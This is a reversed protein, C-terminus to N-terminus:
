AWACEDEKTQPHLLDEGKWEYFDVEYGPILLHLPEERLGVEGVEGVM